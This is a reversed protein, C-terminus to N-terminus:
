RGRGPLRRRQSDVIFDTLSVGLISAAFGTVRPANNFFRSVVVWDYGAPLYTSGLLTEYAQRLFEAHAADVQNGIVTNESLGVVYNRGRAWRGRFGTLFKIALTTGNPMAPSTNTGTQPTAPPLEVAPASVSELSTAKVARLSVTNSTLPKITAVWWDIIAQAVVTLESIDYPDGRQVYLTNEMQQNDQTYFLEVMATNPVPIFAM